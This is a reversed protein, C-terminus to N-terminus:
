SAADDGMERDGFMGLRRVQWGLILGRLAVDLLREGKDM